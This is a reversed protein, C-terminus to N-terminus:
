RFPAPRVLEAMPRSPIEAGAPIEFGRFFEAAALMRGGPRQLRRLRLIGSGTAIRLGAPDAGLVTGPAAPRQAEAAVADALGLKVTRGALEVTCGPWPSLGNVRAALVAAPAQFDLAGDERSLRRCYTARAAEQERFELTGAALKPLSRALLPVASAALKAEVEAATDLEGVSVTERDAVPGADLQRVIRMLCAGTVREGSAVASQIPSAGRYLPLLSAHVNLTGLRATAIFEDGLVHGYAMVLAVDPALAALESAEKSGLRAPQLVPLGRSLAWSKVANPQVSMGRGAPRDPQTFVGALAAIGRGQGALWELLPLAIADSGLFVLRLPPM